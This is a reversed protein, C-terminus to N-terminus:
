RMWLLLRQSAPINPVNGTRAVSASQSSQIPWRHIGGKLFAGIHDRMVDCPGNNWLHALLAHM